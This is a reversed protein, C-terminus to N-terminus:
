VGAGRDGPDWEYEALFARSGHAEALSDDLTLAQEVARRALPLCSALPEWGYDARLLWCDALDCYALTFGPDNEIAQNFSDIAKRLAEDTRREM